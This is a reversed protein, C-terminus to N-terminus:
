KQRGCVCGQHTGLQKHQCYHTAKNAISPALHLQRSPVGLMLGWRCRCFIGREVDAQGEVEDLTCIKELCKKFNEEETRSILSTSPVVVTLNDVLLLHDSSLGVKVDKPGPFDEAFIDGFSLSARQYGQVTNALM